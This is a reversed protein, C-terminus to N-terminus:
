LAPPVCYRTWLSGCSYVLVDYKGLNTIYERNPAPDIEQGLNDVYFIRAIRALLSPTEKKASAHFGINGKDAKHSVIGDTYDFTDRRARFMHPGASPPTLRVPHSIECQGFVYDKNEQPFL